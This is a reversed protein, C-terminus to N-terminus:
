KSYLVGDAQMAAIEQADFGLDAAIQANREGLAPAASKPNTDCGSFRFPLNPMKIMGLRPHNQEFVMGRAQIQPDNVAEDIRQM